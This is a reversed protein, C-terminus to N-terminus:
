VLGVFRLLGYFVIGDRLIWVGFELFVLCVLGFEGWIGEVRVEELEM